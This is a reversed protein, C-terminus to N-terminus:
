QGHQRELLSVLRGVSAEMADLKDLASMTLRTQVKLMERLEDNTPAQAGNNRDTVNQAEPKPQAIVDMGTPPEAKLRNAIRYVMKESLERSGGLWLSVSSRNMKLIDALLGKDGNAKTHLLRNLWDKKQDRTAM